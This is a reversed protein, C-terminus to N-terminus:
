YGALVPISSLLSCYDLLLHSPHAQKLVKAVWKWPPQNYKTRKSIDSAVHEQLKWCCCCGLVARLSIKHNSSAAAPAAAAAAHVQDVKPAVRQM